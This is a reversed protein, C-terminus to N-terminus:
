ETQQGVSCAVYERVTVPESSWAHVSACQVRCESEERCTLVRGDHVTSQMRLASFEEM